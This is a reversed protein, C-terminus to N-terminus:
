PCVSLKRRSWGVTNERRLEVDRGVLLRKNAEAALLDLHRGRDDIACDGNVPILAALPSGTDARPLSSGGMGIRKLENVVDNIRLFRLGGNNALDGLFQSTGVVR